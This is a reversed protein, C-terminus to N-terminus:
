VGVAPTAGRARWWVRLAERDGPSLLALYYALSVLSFPGVQLTFLIGLHLCVGVLVFPKRLDWRSLARVFRGGSERRRRAWYFLLLGPVMVEWHWTVATMLSLAWSYNATWDMNFRRWTPDQYVWYLASYGGLPTWVPSVKQIGTFGYMVLLQFILLYRPWALIPEPPTSNAERRRELWRSLSLDTHAGSLFLLLMGNVMLGDYGGITEGQIRTLAFYTQAAVLAPTRGGVGLLVLATAVLSVIAVSWVVNPTAGGLWAVLGTPNLTLAGGYARDIWMASLVGSYMADIITGLLVTSLAVRFWALSIPAETESTFDVWAALRGRKSM